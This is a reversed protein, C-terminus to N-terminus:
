SRPKPTGGYASGGYAMPKAQQQTSQQPQGGSHLAKMLATVGTLAVFGFAVHKLFDKRDMRKQMLEEFQKHMNTNM